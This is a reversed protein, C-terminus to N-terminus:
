WPVGFTATVSPLVGDPHAAQQALAQPGLDQLDAPLNYSHVAGGFPSSAALHLTTGLNTEVLALVCPGTDYGVPRRLVVSARTSTLADRFYLPVLSGSVSSTSSVISRWLGSGDPAPANHYLLPHDGLLPVDEDRSTYTLSGPASASSCVGAQAHGTTDLSLAGGASPTHHHRPIVVMDEAPELLSFDEEDLTMEVFDALDDEEEEEGEEEDGARGYPAAAAAAAAARSRADGALKAGPRPAGAEQKKKPGQGDMGPPPHADPAPPTAARGSVRGADSHPEARGARAAQGAGVSGTFESLPPLRWIHVSASDASAAALWRLARAPHGAAPATGFALSCLRAPRSGRRLQAVLRPRLSRLDVGSQASAGAGPDLRAGSHPPRALYSAPPLDFVRILTGKESATAMRRGCPSIAVVRTPTNRHPRLTYPVAMISSQLSLAAATTAAAAAAANQAPSTSPIPSTARSNRPRDGPPPSSMLRPGGLAAAVTTDVFCLAVYLPACPYVLRPYRGGRSALAVPAGDSVPTMATVVFCNQRLDFVHVGDEVTIALLPPTAEAPDLGSQDPSSFVLSRVTSNMPIDALPPSNPRSLDLILVRRPSSTYSFSAVSCAPLGSQEAVDTAADPDAAGAVAVVPSGSGRMAAVAVGGIVRVFSLPRLPHSQYVALGKSFGVVLCQTDDSFSMALPFGQSLVGPPRGVGLVARGPEAQPHRAPLTSM